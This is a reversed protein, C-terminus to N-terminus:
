PVRNLPPGSPQSGSTVPGASSGGLRGHTSFAPGPPTGPADVLVCPSVPGDIVQMGVSTPGTGGSTAIVLTQGPGVMTHSVTFTSSSSSSGNVRVGVVGRGGNSPPATRGRPQRCAKGAPTYDVEANIGAARLQSQLGKADSLKNITVSVDGNDRHDVAFAPAVGGGTVTLLAATAAAAATATGAFLLPRRRHSGPTAVVEPAPRESVVQRLEALLRHEFQSHIM